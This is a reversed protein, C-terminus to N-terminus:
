EDEHEPEERKEYKTKTASLKKEYHSKQEFSMGPHTKMILIDVHMLFM